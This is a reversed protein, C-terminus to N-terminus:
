KPLLTSSGRMSMACISRKRQAFSRRRERDDRRRCRCQKCHFYLQPYECKRRESLDRRWTGGHQEAHNGSFSANRDVTLTGESYIAGGRGADDTKLVATELETNEIASNNEFKTGHVTVSGKSYVASGSLASSQTFVIDGSEPKEVTLIADSEVLEFSGGYQQLEGTYTFTEASSLTLELGLEATGALINHDNLSYAM